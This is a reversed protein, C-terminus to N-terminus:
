AIRVRSETVLINSDKDLPKNSNRDLRTPKNSTQRVPKNWVCPGPGLIPPKKQAEASVAAMPEDIADQIEHRADAMHHLRERADKKLCRRLLRRIQWPTSAPLADWDPEHNLIAGIVDSLTEGEFPSRGTLAEFMLCGFSWSLRCMLMASYGAMVTLINNFDHAVGSTLRGMIEM